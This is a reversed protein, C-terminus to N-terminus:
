AYCEVVMHGLKQKILGFESISKGFQRREKCQKASLEILRKMGGVCGGGLGTRGSNLISMAVKFGKGVEGLVNANPVRVNDLMVTTTNSARLGMKDEHPGTSVGQMDK